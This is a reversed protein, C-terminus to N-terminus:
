GLRACADLAAAAFVPDPSVRDERVCAETLKIAHEDGSEVAREALDEVCVDATRTAQAPVRARGIAVRLAACMQWAYAFVAQHSQPAVYPLVLRSAAPATVGHVFTIPAREAEALYWGTFARTLESLGAPVDTPPAVFDVSAEWSELRGVAMVEDTILGGSRLEDDLLPLRRAADAPSIPGAPVPTGPLEVYVSAWYALARALESRRAPTDAEELARVAHSTRILCHGAAAIAGPLMAGLADAVVAQWPAEDLAARYTAVWDGYSSPRGLVDAREGAGLVRGHAPARLGAGM